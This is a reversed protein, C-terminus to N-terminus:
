ARGAVPRNETGKSLKVKELNDCVHFTFTCLRKLSADKVLTIGKRNMWTVANM